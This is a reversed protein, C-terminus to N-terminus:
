QKLAEKKGTDQKEKELAVKRVLGTITRNQKKIQFFLHFQFFFLIGLALFIIANVNSEIGLLHAFFFTIQDPFLAVAAVMIWFGSWFVAEIISSRGKLHQHIVIYIFVLAILPVVIQYTQPM